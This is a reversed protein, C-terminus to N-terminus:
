DKGRHEVEKWYKEFAGELHFDPSNDLDHCEMCKREAVGGALPLKMENRLQAILAETPNGEGNEAAVHASGPGHCNECGNHQLQPTEQLSLYGSDFPYYKQPEWGTVHCSLCEPDFHRPVDGREGPHVLSDTAHAHPTKSWVAAAKTHCGACTESGVFQHGSPHKRPFVRLEDLGMQELQKQYDAMLQRMEPSDKFRDDLPVRQYRIPDQKDNFVGVVGAYMGKTGVQALLSKTGQIQELEATPEGYGGATVVLDFIPVDKALAKTEDMSAHSLLVYYDCKQAKLETAAAKLAKLPAEHVFDDGNLKAEHEAGLVATVGIKKGGAEIVKITPQLDRALVAVNAGVFITNDSGDPNTANLLSAMPLRLDESGLAVAGYEMTRLADATRAFKIQEQEGIRRTQNGVDLPVVPWGRDDRLERIFTHRRALGGKQNALGTCGCPEIYGNQQGTLVLAFLPKPWGEFLPDRKKPPASPSNANPATEEDETRPQRIPQSTQGANATAENRTGSEPPLDGRNEVPLTNQTKSPFSESPPRTGSNGSRLPNPPNEPDGDAGADSSGSAAPVLPIISSDDAPLQGDAPQQGYVSPPPSATATSSSAPWLPADDVPTEVSTSANPAAAAQDNAAATESKTPAEAREESQGCGALLVAAGFAVITLRRLTGSFCQFSLPPAANYYQLASMTGDM